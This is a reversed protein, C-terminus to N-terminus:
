AELSKKWAIMAMTLASSATAFAGGASMQENAEQKKEELALAAVGAAVRHFEAHLDRVKLYHPSQKDAASLDNGYLWKGFACLNDPKISEVTADDMAGTDIAQRLRQKWMGHSAIAETIGQLIERRNTAAPATANM